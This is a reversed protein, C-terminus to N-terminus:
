YKKIISIRFKWVLLIQCIAFFEDFNSKNFNSSYSVIAQGSAVELFFCNNTM